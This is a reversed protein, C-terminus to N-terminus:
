SPRLLYRAYSGGRVRHLLRIRWLKDEVGERVWCGDPVDDFTGDERMGM